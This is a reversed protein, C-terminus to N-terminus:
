IKLLAQWYTPDDIRRMVGECEEMVVGKEKTYIEEKGNLTKIIKNPQNEFDFFIQRIEKGKKGMYTIVESMKGADTAYENLVKGTTIKKSNVITKTIGGMFNVNMSMNLVEYVYM